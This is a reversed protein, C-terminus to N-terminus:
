ILLWSKRGWVNLSVNSTVIWPQHHLFTKQIFEIENISMLKHLNKKKILKPLEHRELFKNMKNVDDLKYDYLHEYYERVIV